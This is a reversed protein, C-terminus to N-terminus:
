RSWRNLAVLVIFAASSLLLPMSLVVLAAIALLSAGIAGRWTLRDLLLSPRSLLDSLVGRLHPTGSRLWLLGLGLDVGWLLRRHVGLILHGVGLLGVLGAAALAKDRRGGAALLTLGLAALLALWRIPPLLERDLYRVSVRPVERGPLLREFRYRQGVLPFSSLVEQSAQRALNESTYIAKRRSLISSYRYSDGSTRGGAWASGSWRARRLFERARRVPDYRIASYQTLNADFLLPEIAAPLYLHWTSEVVDVDVAPLALDRGGLWGLPAGARKCALEVVFASERVTASGPPITLVQGPALDYAQGLNAPNAELVRRWSTPDGYFTSAIGSLTDGSMVEYTRGGAAIRESQPLPFLLRGDDARAPRVPLGDILAHTLVADAPLTVGLYQRTNNRLRLRLKTIETGDEIVVTSAGLSDAITSTLEVSENRQLSLRVMPPSDFSYGMLLPKQTLGTLQTPLDRLTLETAQEVADAAVELGAPGQVGLAGEIAVAGSPLPMRLTVPAELDAPFQFHVRVAAADDVLHRLLVVLRGEGGAETQWQLVDDGTVDLVEVGQPVALEVRDTEGDRVTYDLVAVGQVLAEHLTFLTHVSADLRVATADDHNAQRRWTLDLAGRADLHGQLRTGGATPSVATLVGGALDADIDREPVQVQVRTPGSPPLSFAVRRGFRDDERGQYFEVVVQHVGPSPIGVTYMGGEPLVSTARGDLTVSRITAGADLVPVRAPGDGPQVDLVTVLRGEFVGREYRGDVARARQLVRAPPAPSVQAALAAERLAEWRELPLTVTDQALATPAALLACALWLMLAFPRPPHPRPM